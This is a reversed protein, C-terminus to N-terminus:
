TPLSPYKDDGGPLPSMILFLLSAVHFSISPVHVSEVIRVMQFIVSHSCVYGMGDIDFPLMDRLDLPFGRLITSFYGLIGSTKEM